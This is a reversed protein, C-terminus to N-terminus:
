VNKRKKGLIVPSLDYPISNSDNLSILHISVVFTLGVIFVACLSVSYKKVYKMGFNFIGLSNNPVAIM